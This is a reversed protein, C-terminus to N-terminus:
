LGFILNEGNFSLEKFGFEAMEARMLEIHGDHEVCLLRLGHDILDRFPLLKFIPLNMGEIDLNIISFDMGVAFLLEDITITKTLYKTFKIPWGAEWKKVHDTSSTSLADGGSDYFTILESMSSVAANVLLIDPRDKYTRLFRAANDPAPEVYVGGWGQEVLARTNSLVIPDYAGIELFRKPYDVEVRKFYSIIHIEEDNQSHIGSTNTTHKM